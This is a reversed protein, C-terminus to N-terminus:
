SGTSTSKESNYTVKRVYYKMTRNSVHKKDKITAIQPIKKLIIKLPINLICQKSLQNTKPSGFSNKGKPKLYEETYKRENATNICLSILFSSEKKKVSFCDDNDREVQM